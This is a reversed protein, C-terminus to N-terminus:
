KVLTASTWISEYAAIKLAATDDARVIEAPSRKALDKLSQTVTWAQVGDIFIVRDHLAKAPALRAELPRNPYQTQWRLVAPALSPKVTAQDALLRLPISEQMSGAFDTLVSEDLYPDVLLVDTKAAGLIKSVAAFADFSNGVPIFAGQASQPADLEAIALAKYLTLIINQFYEKRNPMNLLSIATNAEIQLAAQGSEKLVATVQGIWRMQDVSLSPSTPAPPAIEILRGIRRYLNEADMAM